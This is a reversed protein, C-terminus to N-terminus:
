SLSQLLQDLELQSLNSLPFDAPTYINAASNNSYEIMSKLERYYSNALTEVTEPQYRHENYIWNVELRGETVFCLIEMLYARGCDGDQRLWREKRIPRMILEENAEGNRERVEDEAGVGLDQIKELAPGVVGRCDFRIETMMEWTDLTERIIKDTGLYRLVGYGIGGGPAQRFHEKMLKLKDSVDCHTAKWMEGIRLPSLSTFWGVTQSLDIREMEQVPARRGDDEIAILVAGGAWEELVDSLATLLVEKIQARFFQPIDKLLATTEDPTMVFAAIGKGANHNDDGSRDVPLRNLKKGAEELWYQAENKLQDSRSFAEIARAWQQYSSNNEPSPGDNTSKLATYIRRLDALLVGWSRWDFILRHVVIHLCQKAGELEVLAINILPGKSLDVDVQQELTKMAIDQPQHSMNLHLCHGAIGRSVAVYQRWGGEGSLEYRMRLAEHRNLLQEVSQRLLDFSVGSVELQLIQNHPQPLNLSFFRLQIPLLPVHKNEGDATEIRPAASVVAAALSAITQHQFIQMTTLDLGAQIAQAAVQISLISDGGLEFFNDNIGVREQSLTRQWIGVLTREVLTRPELYRGIDGAQIKAPNPLAQRDIKGNVTLPIEDLLVIQSPVMFEPLKQRLYAKLLDVQRAPSETSTRNTQDRCVVYATLRKDAEGLSKLATVCAMVQPHARLVSEIEGLEVRYGRLKIQQDQRGVYELMGDVRRRVIDGTRYLRAGVKGSYSDSIFREATLDSRNHYGRGVGTGGIFLEGAIGYPVPNLTGDLVYLQTNDVAEGIPPDGQSENVCEYVSACITGETPGYANFFRRGSAWQEVTKQRCQEGAAIVTELAPLNEPRLASLVAPPLTMVGVATTHLLEDLREAANRSVILTAGAALAMSIEWISADFSLSAFQLIRAGPQVSFLRAQAAIINSLGQHLLLAGKPLGSSGSTYILYALNDPAVRVSTKAGDERGIEEWDADLCIVQEWQTPLADLLREQTLVVAVSADELMYSLRKSPYNPDLPVYVGGAKFVGMMAVISELALDLSVGVRTEPGVGLSGLYRAVQNARRDLQIYTLHLDESILAIAEPRCEAQAEFLHHICSESAYDTDTRNWTYILEYREINTLMSLHSIRQDPDATISLLLQEYHNAMRIITEKYFLDTSFEFTLEFNDTSEYISVNLDLKATRNVNEMSILRLGPLSLEAPPINQMTMMVQFLPHRSLSRDPQLMDVLKEMPADQWEYVEITDRKVKELLARFPPDASLDARMAITNVFLGIVNEVQPWMRNAVPVGIVVDLQGSYRSLLAQYAALLLMYLTTGAQRCLAQLSELLSISYYFTLIDGSHSQIQPRPLDTPLKLEHPAGELYKKWFALQKKLKDGQIRRSQWVAYDAFQIAPKVLTALRGLFRSEYLTNLENVFISISWGDAIIHHLTALFVYGQEDIRLVKARILPGASLDFPRHAEEECLRRAEDRRVAEPTRRLDLTPLEFHIYEKIAQYPRGAIEIFVTRLSEHRQILEVISAELIQVDLTGKLRMSFHINYAPDYNDLKYLFWIREQSSTLPYYEAKERVPIVELQRESIKNISPKFLDRKQPNLEENKNATKSMVKSEPM